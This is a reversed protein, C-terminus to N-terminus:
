PPPHGLFYCPFLASKSTTLPVNSEALYKQTAELNYIRALHTEKLTQIFIEQNWPKRTAPSYLDYQMVTKTPSQPLAKVSLWSAQSPYFYISATLSIQIQAEMPRKVM